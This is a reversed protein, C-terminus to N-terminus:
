ISQVNARPASRQSGNEHETGHAKGEGDGQAVGSVVWRWKAANRDQVQQRDGQEPIAERRDFFV